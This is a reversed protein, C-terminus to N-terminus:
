KAIGVEKYYRMAGPHVPITTHLANELTLNGKLGPIAQYVEGIHEFLTKTLQYVIEDSLDARVIIVNATAYTHVVDPQGPYSNAPLDYAVYFPNQKIFEERNPMDLLRYPKGAAALQQISSVPIGAPVISCDVTGDLVGQCGETYNMYSPTFDNFSLGYFAMIAKITSLSGNGQTGVAVVKGRLDAPSKIQSNGAVAFHLVGPQLGASLVKFNPNTMDEYPAMKHHAFYGIHENTMAVDLEGQSMLVPNELAGGTIEVTWKAPLYKEFVTSIAVGVPYYAGGTGATGYTMVKPWAITATSPSAQGQKASSPEASGNAMLVMGALLMAVALGIAKKKM